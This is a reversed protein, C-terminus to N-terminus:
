NRARGRGRTIANRSRPGWIEGSGRGCGETSTGKPESIGGWAVRDSCQAGACGYDEDGGRRSPVFSSLSLSIPPSSLFPLFLVLFLIVFM